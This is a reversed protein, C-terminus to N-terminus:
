NQLSIGKLPLYHSPFLRSVDGAGSTVDSLESLPTPYRSCERCTLGNTKWLCACSLFIMIAYFLEQPIESTYICHICKVYTGTRNLIPPKRLWPVGFDDLDHSWSKTNFGMTVQSGGNQSVAPPTGPSSASTKKAQSRKGDRLSDSNQM